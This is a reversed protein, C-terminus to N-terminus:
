VQRGAMATGTPEGGTPVAAQVTDLSLGFVALTEVQAEDPQALAAADRAARAARAITPAFVAHDYGPAVHVPVEHAYRTPTDTLPTAM